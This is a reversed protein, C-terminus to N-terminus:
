FSKKLRLGMLLNSGRDRNELSWSELEVMLSVGTDGINAHVQPQGYGGIGNGRLTRYFGETSLFGFLRKSYWM